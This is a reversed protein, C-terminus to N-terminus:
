GFFRQLLTLPETALQDATTPKAAAAADPDAAEVAPMNDDRTDTM